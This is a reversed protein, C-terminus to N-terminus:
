VCVAPVVRTRPPMMPPGLGRTMLPPERSPVPVMEVLTVFAPVTLGPPAAVMPVNFM